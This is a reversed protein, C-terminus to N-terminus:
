RPSRDIGSQGRLLLIMHASFAYFCRADARGSRHAEVDTRDASKRPQTREDPRQPASHWHADFLSPSTLPIAVKGRKVIV